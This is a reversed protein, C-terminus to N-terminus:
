LDLAGPESPAASDGGAAKLSPVLEAVNTEILQLDGNGDVFSLSLLWQRDLSAVVAVTGLPTAAGAGSSIVEGSLATLDGSVIVEEDSVAAGGQIVDAVIIQIIQVDGGGTVFAINLMDTDASLSAAIAEGGTAVADAGSAAQSISTVNGPLVVVNEDEDDASTHGGSM